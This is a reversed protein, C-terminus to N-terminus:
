GPGITFVGVGADFLGYGDLLEVILGPRAAYLLRSDEAIVVEAVDYLAEVDVLRWGAQDLVVMGARTAAYIVGDNSAVVSSVYDNSLGTRETYSTWTSGDSVRMGAGATAVYVTGRADVTM